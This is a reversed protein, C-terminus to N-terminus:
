PSPCVSGCHNRTQGRSKILDIGLDSLCDSEQKGAVLLVAGQVPQQLLQRRLKDALAIQLSQQSLQLQLYQLVDGVVNRHCPLPWGRFGDHGRHGRLPSRPDCFRYTSLSPPSVTVLAILAPDQVDPRATVPHTSLWPPASTTPAWTASSSPLVVRGVETGSDPQRSGCM